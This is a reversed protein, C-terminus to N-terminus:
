DKQKNNPIKLGCQLFTFHSGLFISHSTGCNLMQTELTETEMQPDNTIYQLILSILSGNIWNNWLYPVHIHLSHGCIHVTLNQPHAGDKHLINPTSLLSSLLVPYLTLSIRVHLLVTYIVSVRKGMNYKKKTLLIYLLVNKWVNSM